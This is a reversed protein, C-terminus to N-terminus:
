TIELTSVEGDAGIFTEGAITSASSGPLSPTEVLASTDAAAPQTGIANESRNQVHGIYDRGRVAPAVDRHFTYVHDEAAIIASDQATYRHRWKCPLCEAYWYDAM